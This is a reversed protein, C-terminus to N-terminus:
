VVTNFYEKTWVELDIKEKLCYKELELLVQFSQFLLGKPRILVLKTKGNRYKIELDIAIHNPFERSKNPWPLTRKLFTWSEVTPNEDLSKFAKLDWEHRYPIERIKYRRRNRRKGKNAQFSGKISLYTLGSSIAEKRAFGLITSASTQAFESTKSYERPGKDKFKKKNSESNKKKQEDTALHIRSWRETDSSIWQKLAPIRRNVFNHAACKPSCFSGSQNRRAPNPCEQYSCKAWLGQKLLNAKEEFNPM